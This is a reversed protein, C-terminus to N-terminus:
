KKNKHILVKKRPEGNAGCPGLYNWVYKGGSYYVFYAFDKNVRRKVAIHGSVIGKLGWLNRLEEQNNM